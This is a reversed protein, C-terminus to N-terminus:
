FFIVVEVSMGDKIYISNEPVFNIISSYDGYQNSIEVSSITGKIAKSQENHVTHFKIIVSDGKKLKCGINKGITKVGLFYGKEQKTLFMVKNAGFQGDKVILKTTKVSRGAINKESSDLSIITLETKVVEPYHILSCLGIIGLILVIFFMIGWRLIWSPNKTIINYMEQTHRYYLEESGQSQPM